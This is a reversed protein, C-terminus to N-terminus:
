QERERQARWEMYSKALEQILVQDGQVIAVLDEKLLELEELKSLISAEVQRKPLCISDAGGTAKAQLYVGDLWAKIELPLLRDALECSIRQGVLATKRLRSATTSLVWHFGIILGDVEEGSIKLDSLSRPHTLRNRVNLSECFCRWGEGSLDPKFGSSFSFSRFYMDWAFLLNDKVPIFRPRSNAKGSSVQYDEERLSALEGLSYVQAMEAFSYNESRADIYALALGKMQSILGEIASFAVWFAVRNNYPTPEERARKVAFEADNMLAFFLEDFRQNAEIVSQHVSM